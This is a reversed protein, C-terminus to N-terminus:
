MRSSGRGGAPRDTACRRAFGGDANRVEARVEAAAPDPLRHLPEAPHERQGVGARLQAARQEVDGAGAAEGLRVAAVAHLRDGRHQAALRLRDGAHAGPQFFQAVAGSAASAKSSASMVLSSRARSHTVLGCRALEIVAVSKVALPQDPPTRCM